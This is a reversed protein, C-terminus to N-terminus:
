VLDMELSLGLGAIIATPAIMFARLGHKKEFNEVELL